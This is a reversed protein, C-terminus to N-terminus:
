MKLGKVLKPKNRQGFMRKMTLALRNVLASTLAQSGATDHELKVDKEYTAM